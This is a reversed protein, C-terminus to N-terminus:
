DHQGATLIHELKIMYVKVINEFPEDLKFSHKFCGTKVIAFELLTDNVRITDVIELTTGFLIRMPVDVRPEYYKFYSAMKSADTSYTWPDKRGSLMLYPMLQEMVERATQKMMQRAEPNNALYQDIATNMQKELIAM